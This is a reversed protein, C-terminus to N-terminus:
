GAPRIRAVGYFHGDEQLFRIKRGEVQPVRCTPEYKKRGVSLHHCVAKKDEDWKWIGDIISGKFDGGMRGDKQFIVVAGNEYVLRKGVVASLFVGEKEIPKFEEDEDQASAVGASVCFLAFCLCLRSCLM